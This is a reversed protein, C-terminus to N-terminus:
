CNELYFLFLFLELNIVPSVEYAGTQHAGCGRTQQSKRAAADTSVARSLSACISTACGQFSFGEIIENIFYSFYM